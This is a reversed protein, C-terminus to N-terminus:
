KVEIGCDPCILHGIKAYLLRLYDYIETITGVTSRSNKISNRSEVAISPPIGRIEDIDPKEVRDLFQRAYTSLSEIYRRLGEAYITDLALSSKGSGSLGTIVTFKHLPINVDINKLNNLRAGRVQIFKELKKY